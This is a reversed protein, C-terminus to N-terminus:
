RLHGTVDPGRGPLGAWSGRPRAGRGRAPLQDTGGAESRNGAPLPTEEESADRSPIPGTPPPAPEPPFSLIEEVKRQLRPCFGGGHGGQGRLGREGLDQSCVLSPSLPLCPPLPLSVSVPLAPSPSVCLCLSLSLCLSEENAVRRSKKLFTLKPVDRSTWHNLSRAEVAPSVPEIGPRPVLIGCAMLCPWFFM